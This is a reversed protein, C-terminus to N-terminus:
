SKSNNFVMGKAPTKAKPLVTINNRLKSIRAQTISIDKQLQRIKNQYSKISDHSNKDEQSVGGVEKSKSSTDANHNIERLKSQDGKIQGNEQKILYQNTIIAKRDRKLHGQLEDMALQYGSLYPSVHGERHKRAYVEGIVFSANDRKELRHVLNLAKSASSSNSAGNQALSSIETQKKESMSSLPGGGSNNQLADNLNAITMKSRNHFSLKIGGFGKYLHHITVIFHNNFTPILRLSPRVANNSQPGQALVFKASLDKPSVAGSQSATVFNLRMTGNDQDYREGTLKITDDNVFTRHSEVASNAVQLGIKDHVGWYCFLIILVGLTGMIWARRRKSSEQWRFRSKSLWKLFPAFKRQLKGMFGRKYTHTSENYYNNKGHGLVLNDNPKNSQNEFDRDLNHRMVDQQSPGNNRQAQYNNDQNNNSNM